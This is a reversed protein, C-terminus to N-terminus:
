QRANNAELLPAISQWLEGVSDALPAEVCRWGALALHEAVEDFRPSVIIAVALEFQRRQLTLYDITAPEADAVVAFVVGLSRDPRPNAPGVARIDASPGLTASAVSELFEDARDPSAFHRPGTEVLQVLFGSQELHLALTATIRIAWEFLESQAEHPLPSWRLDRYGHRTTDLVIRAEAHSRQEEERVMLEGRHASARWHVRRLADGTRYTRTTADDDGGLARFRQVRAAGDDATVALGSSRLSEVDPIVIIKQAEGISVEGRALGFPDSLEVILPGLEFVGRRPPTLAYRLVTPEPRWASRGHLPPLREAPTAFPSWPLVERWNAEPGAYASLHALEITGTAAHGAVLMPSSFDRSVTLRVRRLWVFLLATVPLLLALWGIFLLETRSFTYALIIVVAGVAAMVIGRLTPRVVRGYSRRRPRSPM